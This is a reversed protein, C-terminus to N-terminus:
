VHLSDCQTVQTVCTVHTVNTVYTVHLMLLDEFPIYDLLLKCGRCNYGAAAIMIGIGFFREPHVPM